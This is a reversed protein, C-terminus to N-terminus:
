RELIITVPGNNVLSVHMHAGFIGTKVTVNRTRLIEAFEEYMKEAKDPLAADTFGPRRGKRCDAYLTFQSVLLIDGRIELLSRNMLGGDDEFIRMEVAKNALWKMQTGDDERAIGLLILIGKGIESITKGDVEVKASSVRQIVLKM